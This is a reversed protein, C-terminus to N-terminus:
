CSCFQAGLEPQSCHRFGEQWAALLYEEPLYKALLAVLHYTGVVSGRSALSLFESMSFWESYTCLLRDPVFCGCWTKKQSWHWEMGVKGPFVPWKGDFSKGGMLICVSPACANSCTPRKIMIISCGWGTRCLVMRLITEGTLVRNQRM